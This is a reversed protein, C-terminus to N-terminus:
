GRLVVVESGVHEPTPAIHLVAHRHLGAAEGEEALGDATVPALVITNPETAREGAPGITHRLREIRMGDAVERVATPQSLFRWGDAEGTDPPPLEIEAEFSELTEAIALAVLGGPAVARRASAFFGSRGPLLQITQMPVAVLAFAAEGADFDAADAVLTRVPLGDARQELAALLDADLDLATVDHGARALDLAVRGTGAGVDLVPGGAEDALERWLPLDAVYAGCEVDHWIVKANVALVGRARPPQARGQARAAGHLDAARLAPRRRGGARPRAGRELGDVVELRAPDVGAYKLRLALEAARTGSCTLRRVHPAVIEWDADWVWSVDRGDATRDNLVGFLDLDTGELALTRLVENAGAPNKVLLISMPRDGVAVTEARGFAPAVAGLGAAVEDLPVGLRLCLAAAGLANYVNYLGPLPLEIRREGEPATLTFAASRIGRLEVDSAHVQPDPRRAGCSPCAYRGLHALYAAEYVYAAGCRRCHKSDSAHQLEPLALADDQVGFYLPERHRGLDAVLPDDANLVLATSDPLDAVIAAWRDAIIELEGYRDLQDRFLNSLLVARPELEDAVPGLWFEDVEFLGM